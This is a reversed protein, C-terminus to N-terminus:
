NNIYLAPRFGIYLSVDFPIKRKTMSANCEEDGQAEGTGCLASCYSWVAIRDWKNGKQMLWESVNGNIDYINKKNFDDSAGTTLLISSWKEKNKPTNEISTWDIAENWIDLYKASPRDIIKETDMCNGWDESYLVSEEDIVFKLIAEWQEQYCLTSTVGTTESNILNKSLYVAGYGENLEEAEVEEDYIHVTKGWGVFNYPYCDRKVVVPSTGNERYTTKSSDTYMSRAANTTEIGAEYRGIYFGKNNQVSKMMHYYDEEEGTYGDTNPYTEGEEDKIKFTGLFGTDLGNEDKTGTAEYNVPIWVFENGISNGNNNVADTIVLGDAISKITGDDNIEVAFGKPIVAQYDGQTITTNAGYISSFKENPNPVTLEGSGGIGNEEGIRKGENGRNILEIHESRKIVFLTVVLISIVIITITLGILNLKKNKKM